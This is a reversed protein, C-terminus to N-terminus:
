GQVWDPQTQGTIDNAENQVRVPEPADAFPEATPAEPVPGAKIADIIMAKTNVGASLTIGRVKALERLDKVTMAELDDGQGTEAPLSGGTKGDGDQDVKGGFEGKLPKFWSAKGEANFIDGAFRLVGGYYGRDTAVVKAMAKIGGM